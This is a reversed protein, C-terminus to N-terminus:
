PKNRKADVIAKQLASIVRNTEPITMCISVFNGHKDASGAHIFREVDDANCEFIGIEERVKDKQRPSTRIKVHYNKIM